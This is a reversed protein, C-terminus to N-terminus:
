NEKGHGFYTFGPSPVFDEPSSRRTKDSLECMTNGHKGPSRSNYSQCNKNRLCRVGCGFEDSALTEIVHGVLKFGLVFKSFHQNIIGFEWQVVSHKSELPCFVQGLSEILFEELEIVVLESLRISSVQSSM